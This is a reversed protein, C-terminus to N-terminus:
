ELNLFENNIKKSIINYEGKLSKIIKAGNFIEM